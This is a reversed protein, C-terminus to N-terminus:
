DRVRDHFRFAWQPVLPTRYGGAGRPAPPFDGHGIARRPAPADASSGTGRQFGSPKWWWQRGHARVRDHQEDQRGDERGGGALAPGGRRGRGSGGGGGGALGGGVRQGGLALEQHPDGAAVVAMGGAVGFAAAVDGRGFPEDARWQSVEAGPARAIGGVQAQADARETLLLPQGLGGVQVGTRQHGVERQPLHALAVAARDVAEHAREALGAFGRGLRQRRAHRRGRG